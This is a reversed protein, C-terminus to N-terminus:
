SSEVFNLISYLHSPFSSFLPPHSLKLHTTCCRSVGFTISLNLDWTSPKGDKGNLPLWFQHEKQDAFDVIPFMITGELEGVFFKLFSYKKFFEYCVRKTM